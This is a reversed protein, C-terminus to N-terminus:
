PGSHGRATPVRVQSGFRLGLGFNLGIELSFRVWDWSRFALGSGLDFRLGFGLVHSGCMLDACSVSGLVWVPSRFKLAM